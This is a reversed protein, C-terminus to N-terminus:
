AMDWPLINNKQEPVQNSYFSQIKKELTEKLYNHNEIPMQELLWNIVIDKSLDQYRIFSNQDLNSVDFDWEFPLTTNKGNEDIGYLYGNFTVVADNIVISSSIGVTSVGVTSVGVSIDETKLQCAHYSYEIM